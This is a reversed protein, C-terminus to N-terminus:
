DNFFLKKKYHRDGKIELDGGASFQDISDSTRVEILSKKIQYINRIVCSSHYVHPMVINIYHRTPFYEMIDFTLLLTM